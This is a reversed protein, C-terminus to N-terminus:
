NFQASNWKLENRTLFEFNLICIQMWQQDDDNEIQTSQAQETIHVVNGNMFLNFMKLLQTLWIWDCIASHDSQAYIEIRRVRFFKTLIHVCHVSSSFFRGLISLFFFFITSLSSSCKYCHTWWVSVDAWIFKFMQSAIFNLVEFWNWMSNAGCFEFIIRKPTHFLM